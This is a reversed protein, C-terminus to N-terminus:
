LLSVRVVVGRLPGRKKADNIPKILEVLKLRRKSDSTGRSVM